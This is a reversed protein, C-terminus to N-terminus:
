DTTKNKENKKQLVCIYICLCIITLITIWISLKQVVTNEYQVIVKGKKNANIEVLGRSSQNVNVKEMDITAIYGKYYLLPLELGSGKFQLSDIEFSTVGKEQKLGSIIVGEKDSIISDHREHIFQLSPVQQPIYEGGILHYDNNITPQPTVMKTKSFERVEKYNQTHRTIVLITLISLVLFVIFMKRDSKLLLALYYGGAVSFFFCPFIFLRFPFQIINLVKFISIGWPFLSSTALIFCIGLIVGLDIRNLIVSKQRIFLRLLILITPLIGVGALIIRNDYVFGSFLSIAIIDAPLTHYTPFTAPRHNFYFSDSCMQELMPFIYCAVLPVTILGAIILYKFRIPEKILTRYYILTIIGVLILTLLTTLTHTFILLSFGITLVYWRKYNGIIIYHLGLFVIPLFTLAMAEGIAARHYIDYLRYTCFAYLLGSIYGAFQQKYAKNVFMYMFYGTLVTSTFIMLQYSFDSGTFTGIIIFPILTIDSYFVHVLYGYGDLADYNISAIFHKDHFLEILSDFRQKHFFYDYGPYEGVPSCYYITFLALLSLILIFVYFHSKIGFLSKDLFNNTCEPM